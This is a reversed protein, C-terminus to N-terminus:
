RKLAVYTLREPSNLPSWRKLKLKRKTRAEPWVQPLTMLENGSHEFSFLSERKQKFKVDSRATALVFFFLPIKPLAKGSFM